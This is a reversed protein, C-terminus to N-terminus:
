INSLVGNKEPIDEKNIQNMRCFYRLFEQAFELEDQDSKLSVIDQLITAMMTNEFYRYRGTNWTIKDPTRDNRYYNWFLMEKSEKESLKLRYQEHSPIYGDECKRGSFDEKLMYFGIIRRDKEEEDSNRVTLLCTSNQNLRVLRNPQGKRNGSKIKGTFITWDTFVKNIEKDECWFVVQLIPHNEQSRMLRRQEITRQQKKRLLSEAQMREAERAIREKERKQIMAAVLDRTKQNKLKLHKAFADPFVFKKNGDEFHVEVFTDHEEIVKGKGFSEHLVKEDVLDM